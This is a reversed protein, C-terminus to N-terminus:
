LSKENRLISWSNLPSFTAGISRIITPEQFHLPLAFNFLILPTVLSPILVFPSPFLDDINLEQFQLPLAFNFLILPTVLSPILVLPSPLFDTCAIHRTFSYYLPRLDQIPIPRVLHIGPLSFSIRFTLINQM